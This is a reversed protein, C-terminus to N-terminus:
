PHSGGSSQSFAAKFKDKLGGPTQIAKMIPGIGYSFSGFKGLMGGAVGLGGTVGGFFTGLGAKIPSEKIGLYGRLASVLDPILFLIGIGVLVSIAEPSISYLFPPQWFSSSVAGTKVIMSSVLILVAVIPFTLLDIALHKFWLGATNRGPVANILLILPSFIIFLIIRIYTKLLLFFIRFFIFLGTTVVVIISLIFGAISGIYPLLTLAIGISVLTQGLGGGWGGLMITTLVPGIIPAKGLLGWIGVVIILRLSAGLFQPLISFIASGIRWVGNNWIITGLLTSANGAILSNQKAADAVIQGNSIQINGLTTVGLALIVYMLDILFGAIAFSFTILLLSVVIRPLSNEISIVTQPNIKVRYMIMFGIGILVLVLMILAVDRFKSWILSLPKIASFGIGEAAYSKPVFDANQLGSYAWYVGSAPPAAYVLTVGKTLTGFFSGAFNKDGDSPNVTCAEGILGCMAGKYISIIKRGDKTSNFKPDNINRYIEERGFKIPDIKNQSNDKSFFHVFLSIVIVYVAIVIFVKKAINSINKIFEVM